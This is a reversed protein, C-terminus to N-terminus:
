NTITHVVRGGAILQVNSLGRLISGGNANIKLTDFRIRRGNVLISNVMRNNTVAVDVPINMRRSGPAKVSLVMRGGTNTNLNQGYIRVGTSVEYGEENNMRSVTMGNTHYLGPNAAEARYHDRAIMEDRYRIRPDGKKFYIRGFYPISGVLPIRFNSEIRLGLSWGGAPTANRALFTRKEQNVINQVLRLENPMRFGVNGPIECNDDQAFTLPSMTLLLLIIAKM